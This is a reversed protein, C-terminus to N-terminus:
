ALKPLVPELDVDRAERLARDPRKERDLTRLPRAGLGLDPLEV